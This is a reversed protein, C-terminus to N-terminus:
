SILGRLRYNLMIQDEDKRLFMKALYPKGKPSMAREFMRGATAESLFGILETFYESTYIIPLGKRYRYDVIGYFETIWTDKQSEKCVDDVILLECTCLRQRIEDVVHGQDAAHYAMMEKFGSVWNFFVPYVGLEVLPVVAATVLHTKGAGTKGLVGLWPVGKLGHGKKVRAVLTDSYEKVLEYAEVVRPDVDRTEFTEFTKDIFEESINSSKLVRQIRKREVCACDFAVNRDPDFIIGEDKCNACEYGSDDVSPKKPELIALEPEKGQPVSLVNKIAEM